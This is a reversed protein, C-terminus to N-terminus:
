QRHAVDELQKRTLALLTEVEGVGEPDNNAGTRLELATRLLPEAERARGQESLMRALAVLPRSPLTHGEPLIRGMMDIAERFHLEAEAAMGVRELTLALNHTFVATNVQNPGWRDRAIELARRNLPLADSYRDQRGVVHALNNLSIGVDPHDAGLAAERIALAERFPAEAGAHDGRRSLVAALDNLDLAIRPHKDGLRRRNTELAERLLPEAREFEGMTGYLRGLTTLTLTVASHEPGLAARTITLAEQYLREADTFREQAELALAINHVSIGTRHHREGLVERRLALARRHAAEAGTFDGRDYLMLGVDNHSDAELERDGALRAVEVAELLLPEAEDLQNTIRLLDGLRDLNGALDRHPEAHLGRRIMLAQRLLPEARDYRGLKLYMQGIVDLMEGQIVPQGDLAAAREEGRELLDLGTPVTGAAVNPDNAEFLGMLFGSLARAKSMEAQARDREAELRNAYGTVTVVYTGVALVSAVLAAVVAPRRRVFKRARYRWTAARANVPQGDRHRVLDEALAAVSRYRHDPEKRLTKLVITDLDGRLQRVRRSTAGSPAVSAADPLGTGRVADSPAVPDRTCILRELETPSLGRVDYPVHGTLLQYLLVGLAYVDAATSISEGRVQEPSAYAPTMPRGVLETLIAADGPAGADLAKAIGFDLLKVRGEGTVLVNAPKLDRHVVLSQHAHEVAECVQLFLRIRDAIRLNRRECYRDIPEGEVYEMVFFPTGDDTIGADLLRAIGPHDLGALIRRESLFRARAVDDRLGVPLLKVAVEKEFQRDDRQALYVVGMGGQGILRLLRYAGFRRGELSPGKPADVFPLGARRAFSDLFGDAGQEANLLERVERRLAADDGCRSDLLENRRAPEAALVAHFVAQIREWRAPGTVNQGTM